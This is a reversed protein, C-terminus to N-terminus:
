IPQTRVCSQEFTQRDVFWELHPGSEFKFDNGKQELDGWLAAGPKFELREGDASTAYFSQVVTYLRRM